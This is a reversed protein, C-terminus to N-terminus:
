KTHQWLSVCQVNLGEGSIVTIGEKRAEEKGNGVALFHNQMEDEM